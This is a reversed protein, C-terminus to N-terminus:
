AGYGVLLFWHNLTAHFGELYRTHVDSSLKQTDNLLHKCTLLNKLNDYAGTGAFPSFSFLASTVSSFHGVM